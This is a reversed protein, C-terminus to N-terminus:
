SGEMMMSYLTNITVCCYYRRVHSMKRKLAGVEDENLVKRANVLLHESVPNYVTSALM